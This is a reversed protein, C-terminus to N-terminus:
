THELGIRSQRHQADVVDCSCKVTFDIWWVDTPIHAVVDVRDHRKGREFQARRVPQDTPTLIAESSMKIGVDEGGFGKV